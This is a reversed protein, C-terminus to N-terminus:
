GTFFEISTPNSVRIPNRWHFGPIKVRYGSTEVFFVPGAYIAFVYAFHCRDWEEESVQKLADVARASAPMPVDYIREGVTATWEGDGDTWSISYVRESRTTPTEGGCRRGWALYQQEAM